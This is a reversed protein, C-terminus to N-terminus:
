ILQRVSDVLDETDFPKELAANAGLERRAQRAGRASLILVPTEVGRSRLERFFARGDMVPMELDLVIVDPKQASLRELGESGNAATAVDFGGQRLTLRLLRVLAADDDVVLVNGTEIKDMVGPM